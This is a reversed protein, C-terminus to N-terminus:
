PEDGMLADAAEALLQRARERAVRKTNSLEDDMDDYMSDLLVMAAWNALRYAKLAGRLEDTLVTRGM